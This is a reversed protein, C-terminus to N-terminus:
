LAKEILESPLLPVFYYFGQVVDVGLNTLLNVQELTEVGEVVVEKKLEMCIALMGKLVHLSEVDETINRVFARDIKIVDVPLKLLYGLSCYGAGFDDLCITFGFDRLETLHRIAADSRILTNETIELQLKNIDTPIEHLIEKIGGIFDAQHLSNASVNISIPKSVEPYDRLFQLVLRFVHLDLDFSLGSKEAIPIFEGPSTLGKEPHQWRLLAEYGVVDGTKMSVKPQVNLFFEGSVLGHRVDGLLNLRKRNHEEFKSSFMMGAGRTQEKAIKLAIEAQRLLSEGDFITEGAGIESAGITFGLRYSSGDVYIPKSLIKGIDKLSYRNDSVFIAFVDSHLRTIMDYESFNQTLATAVAVLVRNGFEYGLGEIIDHFYDIDVIFLAANQKCHKYYTGVNFIFGSRSYLGTLNDFYAARNLHSFFKANELGLSVNQCFVQLLEKQVDNLEFRGDLVIVGEWCAPTSLYIATHHDEFLSSKDSIAQLVIDVEREDKIQDLAKGYLYAYKSSTAVVTYSNGEKSMMEQLGRGPNQSVCFIGQTSISFLASIQRLVGDAFEHISREKILNSAAHIVNRLGEKSEELAVLHSYARIASAISAYLKSHTLENKTKYDNIEYKEIVEEEPAYGPQGTRLIIQINNMNLESRIREVLDLGATPTEMVVDLLTVACDPNKRLMEFGEEASYASVFELGNGKFTSNRLALMTADHVSRDDDIVAIKWANKAGIHSDEELFDMMDDRINLKFDSM